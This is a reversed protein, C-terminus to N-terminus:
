NACKLICKMMLDANKDLQYQLMLENGAKVLQKAKEEDKFVYMMKQAIDEHSEPNFYIAAEGFISALPEKQSTIVPVGCQMAQLVPLPIEDYFVPHVLAYASATIKALEAKVLDEVLKVENRLKYTKLEKKFNADTEGAILLLM